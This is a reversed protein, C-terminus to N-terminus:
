DGDTSTFTLTIGLASALDVKLALELAKIAAAAKAM